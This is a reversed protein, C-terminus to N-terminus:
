RFQASAGVFPSHLKDGDTVEDGIAQAEFRQNLFPFLYMEGCGVTIETQYREALFTIAQLMDRYDFPIDSGVVRHKHADVGGTCGAIDETGQAAVAAFLKVLSEPHNVLFTASGHNVEELLTSSDAQHIFDFGVLELFLSHVSHIGVEVQAMLSVLAIVAHSRLNEM